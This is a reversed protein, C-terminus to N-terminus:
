IPEETDDIEVTATANTAAVAATGDAVTPQQQQKTAAKAGKGAGFM